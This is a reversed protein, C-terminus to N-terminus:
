LDLVARWSSYISRHCEDIIILNFYDRPLQPNGPLVVAPASDQGDDDDLPTEDDENNDTVPEGSLLAFLRQITSIVVNAGQDVKGSKLRDVGFITNFPDGSETLRYSGFEREAQRGLNNRDVLFLVRHYQAYNLLRYAMTIALYTKGAGTALVMLARQKGAKLSQELNCIGEYQCDRLGRRQIMPLGAYHDPIQLRKVVEKPSLFGDVETYETQDTNRLDRFFYQRGNSLWVLPLPNQWAACWSPLEKTYDEAQTIVAPTNVDIEERKTEVVGVAKGMLFLLYDAEDNGKLLGETVAIAEDPVFEARSVVRWGAAELKKDIKLRAKEEPTM